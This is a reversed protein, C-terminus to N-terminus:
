GARNLRRISMGLALGFIAHNLLSLELLKQHRARSAM